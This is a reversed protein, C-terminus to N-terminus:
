NPHLRKQNSGPRTSVKFNFEEIDVFGAAEMAKRQLGDEFVTFPRGSKEGGKLFFKGWQGLASDERVTGDDSKVM